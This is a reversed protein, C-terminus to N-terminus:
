EKTEMTAEVSSNEFQNVCQGGAATLHVGQFSGSPYSPLNNGYAVGPSRVADIAQGQSNYHVAPYISTPIAADSSTNSGNINKSSMASSCHVGFQQHGTAMPQPGPQGYTWNMATQSNGYTLQNQPYNTFNGSPMQWTSGLAPGYNPPQLTTLLQPQSTNVVPQPHLGPTKHSAQLQTPQYHVAKNQYGNQHVITQQNVHQSHPINHIQSSQNNNSNSAMNVNQYVVQGGDGGQTQMEYHQGSHHIVNVPEPHSQVSSTSQQLQQPPMFINQPACQDTDGPKHPQMTMWSQGPVPHQCVAPTSQHHMYGMVPYNPFVMAAPAFTSQMHTMQPGSPPYIPLPATCQPSKHSFNEIDELDKRTRGALKQKRRSSGKRLSHSRKRVGINKDANFNDNLSWLSGKRIISKPNDDHVRRGKFRSSTLAHRVSSMWSKKKKKDLHRYYPFVSQVEEYVESPHMEKKNSVKYAEVIQQVINMKPKQYGNLIPTDINVGHGISDSSSLPRLTVVNVSSQSSQAENEPVTITNVNCAEENYQINATVVQCDNALCGTSSGEVIISQYSSNNQNENVESAIQSIKQEHPPSNEKETCSTIPECPSLAVTVYSSFQSHDQPHAISHASKKTPSDRTESVDIIEKM